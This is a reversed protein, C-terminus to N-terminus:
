LSHCFKKQLYVIFINNVMFCVSFFIANFLYQSSLKDGNECQNWEGFIEGGCAYETVLYITRDTEM